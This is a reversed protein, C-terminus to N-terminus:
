RQVLPVCLHSGRPGHAPPGTFMDPGAEPTPGPPRRLDAKLGEMHGPQESSLFRLLQRVYAAHDDGDEEDAGNHAKYPM